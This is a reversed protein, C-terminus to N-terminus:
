IRFAVHFEWREQFWQYPLASSGRRLVGQERHVCDRRMPQNHMGPRISTSPVEPHPHHTVGPGHLKRVHVLVKPLSTADNTIIHRAIPQGDM